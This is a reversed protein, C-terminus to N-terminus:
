RAIAAGSFWSAQGDGNAQNCINAPANSWTTTECARLALLPSWRERERSVEPVGTGGSEKKCMYMIYCIHVRFYVCLDFEQGEIACAHVRVCARLFFASKKRLM